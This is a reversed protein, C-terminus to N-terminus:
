QSSEDTGLSLLPSAAIGRAELHKRMLKSSALVGGVHVSSRAVVGIAWSVGASWGAPRRSAACSAWGRGGARRGRSHGAGFSEIVLSPPDGLAAEGLYVLLSLTHEGYISGAHSAMFALSVSM